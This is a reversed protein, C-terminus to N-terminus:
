DDHCREVWYWFQYKDVLSLVKVYCICFLCYAWFSYGLEIKAITVLKVLSVLAGVLFVEAMAWPILAFILRLLSALYWQQKGLKITTIFLLIMLLIVGPFVVTFVYVLLSLVKYQEFYLKSASQWLTVESINGALNFTMLSFLNSLVLLILGTIIYSFLWNIASPRLRSLKHHCRPCIACEGQKLKPAQLLLDCHECAIQKMILVAKGQGWTM